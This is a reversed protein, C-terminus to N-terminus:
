QEMIYSTGVKKIKANGSTLNLIYSHFDIKVELPVGVKVLVKEDYTIDKIILNSQKLDWQIKDLISYDIGVLFIECKINKIIKAKEICITASESYARVLGGAGLMIGGFYRTIVVLVNKLMKSKIVELV